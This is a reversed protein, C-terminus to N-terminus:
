FFFRNKSQKITCCANKDGAVSMDCPAAACLGTAEVTAVYRSDLAAVCEANTVASAAAGDVKKDCTAVATGTCCTALDTTAHCTGTACRVSAVAKGAACQTRGATSGGYAEFLRNCVIYYYYM